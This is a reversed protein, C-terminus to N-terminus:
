KALSAAYEILYIKPAVWIQLAVGIYEIATTFLIPVAICWGLGLAVVGPHVDGDRDHTLTPIHSGVRCQDKPDIKEGLGCYKISLVAAALILMTFVTALLSAQLLKWLLLQQIVEPIESSLFNVGAEAGSTVKALIAALALQLQENM